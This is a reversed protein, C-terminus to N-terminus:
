PQDTLQRFGTGQILREEEAPTLHLLMENPSLYNSKYAEPLWAVCGVALGLAAM